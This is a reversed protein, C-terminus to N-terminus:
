TLEQVSSSVSLMGIHFIYLVRSEPTLIFNFAFGNLSNSFVGSEICFTLLKGTVSLVFPFYKFDITGIASINSFPYTQGAAIVLSM